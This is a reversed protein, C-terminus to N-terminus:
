QKVWIKLSRQELKINQSNTGKLQMLNKKDKVGNIHNIAQNNGILKWKGEPLEVGTFTKTENGANMLVLVKKDVIYGLMSKDEPLIWHYYDDPVAYPVRFVKGDDSLRFNNLGQWFAYMNKYDNKNQDTPTEGVTEWLFHNPNRLNYTDRKGHMHIVYGAHTVKTVEKLPAMGKSRMIESGGHTVIPGLSTYLLTVAM